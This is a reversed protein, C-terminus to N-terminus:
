LETIMVRFVTSFTIGTATAAARSVFVEVKPKSRIGITCTGSRVQEIDTTICPVPARGATLAPTEGPALHETLFFLDVSADAADGAEILVPLFELSGSRFGDVLM